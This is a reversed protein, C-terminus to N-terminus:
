KKIENTPIQLSTDPITPTSRRGTVLWFALYLCGSNNNVSNAQVLRYRCVAFTLTCFFRSLVHVPLPQVTVTSLCHWTLSKSVGAYQIILKPVEQNKQAPIGVKPPIELSSASRSCLFNSHFAGYIRVCMVNVHLHHYRACELWCDM